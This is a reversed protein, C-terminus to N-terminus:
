FIKEMCSSIMIFYYRGQVISFSAVDKLVIISGKRMKEVKITDKCDSHFTGYIEDGKLDKFKTHYASQIIEINAIELVIREIRSSAFLGQNVKAITYTNFPYYTEIEDKKNPYLNENINLYKLAKKWKENLQREYNRLMKNINSINENQSQGDKNQASAGIQSEKTVTGPVSKFPSPKNSNIFCSLESKNPSDITNKSPAMPTGPIIRKTQSPTSCLRNQAVMDSVTLPKHGGLPMTEKIQPIQSNRLGNPNTYDELPDLDEDLRINIEESDNLLNNNGQNQKLSTSPKIQQQSNIAGFAFKNLLKNTQSSLTPGNCNKNFNSQQSLFNEEMKVDDNRKSNDM